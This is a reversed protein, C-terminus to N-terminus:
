KGMRPIKYIWYQCKTTCVEYECGITNDTLPLRSCWRFHTGCVAKLTSHEASSAHGLNPLWEGSQPLHGM